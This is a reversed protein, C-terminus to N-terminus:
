AIGGIVGPVDGPGDRGWPSCGTLAPRIAAERLLGQGLSEVVVRMRQVGSM